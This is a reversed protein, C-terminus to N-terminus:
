PRALSVQELIQLARKLMPQATGYKGQVRLRNFFLPVCARFAPAFLPTTECPWGVAACFSGSFSRGYVFFERWDIECLAKMVDIWGRAPLASLLPSWSVSLLLLVLWSALGQLRSLLFVGLTGRGDAGTDRRDCVGRRFVLCEDRLVRYGNRQMERCPRVSCLQLFQNVGGLLGGLGYGGCRRLRYSVWAWDRPSLPAAYALVGVRSCAVAADSARGALGLSGGDRVRKNNLVALNVLSEAVDVHDTGLVRERLSLVKKLLPEAQKWLVRANSAILSM